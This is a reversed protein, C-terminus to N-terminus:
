TASNVNLNITKCKANSSKTPRLALPSVSLEQSLYMAVKRPENGHQPGRICKLLAEPTTNYYAGVGQVVIPMSLNPQIMRSKGEAALQPMLEDFVWLKFTEDGFITGMNGKTHFRKTQEDVGRMVYHRYGEFPNPHKLLQYTLAVDLWNEPERLGVFAPYSSWPYDKLREVMPITTEIPNRHIYRSLQLLYEDQSVLIGKYRGM